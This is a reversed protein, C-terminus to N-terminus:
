GGISPFFHGDVLDYLETATGNFPAGEILVEDNDLDINVLRFNNSVKRIDFFRNEVIDKIYPTYDWNSITVMDSDGILVVATGTKQIFDIKM